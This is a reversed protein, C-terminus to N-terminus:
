FVYDLFELVKDPPYDSFKVREMAEFVEVKRYPLESIYDCGVLEKMDEFIDKEM